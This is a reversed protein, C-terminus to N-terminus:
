ARHFSQWAIRWVGLILDEKHIAHRSSLVEFILDVHQKFWTKPVDFRDLYSHVTKEVCLTASPTGQILPFTYQRAIRERIM